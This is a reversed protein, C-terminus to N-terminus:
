INHLGMDYQYKMTSKSYLTGDKKRANAYFHKLLNDLEVKNINEFETPLEKEACYERLIRVAQKTANKTEKDALTSEIDVDTKSAFREM